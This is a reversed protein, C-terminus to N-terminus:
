SFYIKMFDDNGNKKENRREKMKSIWEARSVRLLSRFGFMNNANMWETRCEQCEHSAMANSIALLYLLNGIFIDLRKACICIKTRNKYEYQQASSRRPGHIAKVNSSSTDILNEMEKEKQNGYAFSWWDCDDNSRESKEINRRIKTKPKNNHTMSNDVRWLHIINFFFFFSLCCSFFYWSWRCCPRSVVVVDLWM